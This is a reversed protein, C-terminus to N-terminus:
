LLRCLYALLLAVTATVMLAAANIPIQRWWRPGFPWLSTVLALALIPLPNNM